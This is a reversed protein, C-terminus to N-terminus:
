ELALVFAYLDPSGPHLELELEGFQEGLAEHLAEARERGVASSYFMVGIEYAEDAETVGALLATLCEEPSAEASWSNATESVSITARM